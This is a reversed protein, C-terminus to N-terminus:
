IEKEDMLEEILQIFRKVNLPKTLYSHAGLAILRQDQGPTADASVMIVPIEATQKERKLQQLVEAGDTNGLHLDLLILNPHHQRALEIGAKPETAWLLEVQSYDALVQQILEFNAVNDEVYLITRAKASMEPLEGTLGTRQLRALQSEASPLEIWFTSGKGPDSEVGIQGHMLEILRKALALGLGTGEVNPHNAVLREFPTFLRGLNERLIGPGTDSISICWNNPPTQKCSVMVFGGDYNYKVANSLLNLLVQKLRQRDAMVFPNIDMSGFKNVVQIHRKIALPVALDIAEQISERISVPEPSMQLRNAEIRSIDLIENILDLLHQGGKVIQKVREKQTSTLPEKRSMDLLQAFGLIANMPTRLEHSMRSLFESKAQSAEEAVRRSEEAADRAQSLADDTQKRETIDRDIGLVLERDGVKILTTSYEIPFTYGDKHCHSAEVGQMVVERRLHELALSLNERNEKKVNLINISQGILEERTYGNMRAATRNCEIIPWIIEPHHPDILFIAEPSTDFVLHFREESERLSHVLRQRETIDMHAGFVQAPNGQSDFVIRYELLVYQIEGDGCICRYELQGTSSTPTQAAEISERVRSADEPHVFQRLYHEAPIFYGGAKHATTRLVKYFQDNFTFEATKLDLEWYAIKALAVAQALQQEHDRLSQVLRQREILEEQLRQNLTNLEATRQKVRIELEGRQGAVQTLLQRIKEEAEKRETIDRLVLQIAPEGAYSIPIARIEAEFSTGDLRHMKPRLSSTLARLDQTDDIGPQASELNQEPIMDLIPQGILEDPSKAGLLKVGAPNIFLVRGQSHLAIMDPSYDVLSRYLAESEQLEQRTRSLAELMSNFSSALAGIEDHSEIEAKASLDGAAIQGAVATLRSIPAVFMQALFVVAGTSLVLVIPTTLLLSQWASEQNSRLTLYTFFTVLGISSLCVLLFALILKSRVSAVLFGLGFIQRALILVTLLIAAVFLWEAAPSFNVIAVYFVLGYGLAITLLPLRKVCINLLTIWGPRTAPNSAGGMQRLAALVFFLGAINWGTDMWSGVVYAGALSAYGFALDSTLFFCIGVLLLLLVAHADSDSLRFLLAVTGGLLILSWVPYASALLQTLLDSNNVAATPVILFYGFFMSATIFVIILNLWFTLRERQDQPAGPLTLLGWLVFPYSVLFFIDAISPFPELHLVNELYTWSAEGLFFLLFGISLLFWARRIRLDLQPQLAVRLATIVALFLPPLLALNGILSVREEGGWHFYTWALFLLEYLILAVGVM